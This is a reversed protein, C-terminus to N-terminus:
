LPFLSFELKLHLKSPYYEQIASDLQISNKAKTNETSNTLPNLRNQLKRCLHCLRLGDM